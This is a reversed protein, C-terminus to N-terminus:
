CGKLITEVATLLDKCVYDAAVDYKRDTGADGTQVLVTKLGANIGTQIDITTDGVFWSVDLDIHFQEACEKILGIDPKRCHCAIKYAPNEEPYGKDPHHPCYKIADLYVGSQGLLTKLKNHIEEVDKIDCLGRAVVPQNTIVIALYGAQNIKRIAEIACDELEFQEPEYILGNKKNITGDRDLFIAKQMKNLNRNAVYGSALEEAAKEIREVTGVDKVYEPSAYAYVEAYQAVLCSLIDKELDLKEPVTVNNFIDRHFCYIGANVCNDYWYDRVNNKSDFRIVKQNEDIIVLDSDYPHSNPHVFLTALAHKNLHFQMMKDASIDFLVDGFVLLFNDDKIYDKLYYFAGATGLPQEERVYSINVGFQAGDQFHQEIKEGLHGIVLVIDSVGNNKLTEIQWELIPRDCISAMPKPILDKTIAALRTGKGGAMIVAQM